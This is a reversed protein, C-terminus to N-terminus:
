IGPDICTCTNGAFINDYLLAHYFKTSLMISYYSAIYLNDVLECGTNPAYLLYM